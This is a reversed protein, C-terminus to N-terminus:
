EKKADNPKFNNGVIGSRTGRRSKERKRRAVIKKTKKRKKQASGSGTGLTNGDLQKAAPFGCPGIGEIFREQKTQHM